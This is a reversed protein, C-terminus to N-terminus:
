SLIEKKFKLKEPALPNENYSDDLENSYNLDGELFYRNTGNDSYKQLNFMKLNVLCFMEIPLLEM